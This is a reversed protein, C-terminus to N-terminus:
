RSQRLSWAAALRGAAAVLREPPHFTFALRIAPGDAHGFRSGAAVPVGARSAAAVLESESHRAPPRVWVFFGGNPCAVEFDPPLATRLTGVLADRRQRLQDRLGCLHEDYRGSDILATVAVAALHNVGGGSAFVASDAVGTASVADAAMWGLRLGPALSKSFTGLRWVNRYGALGAISPPVVGPAFALEAYADDEVMLLGHREAIGALARRRDEPVLLGTPNHFTPVVYVFAIDRREDVVIRDLAVPDMGAADMPVRRVVLSRETFIDIGLDYSLEDALVVAGTPAQTALMGLASSTGATIVLQDPRCPLGDAASIRGALATRLPLPGQNEGYALAAPGYEALAAVYADCLLGVPLLAPDLYGPGLSVVGDPQPSQVVGPLWLPGGFTGVTM